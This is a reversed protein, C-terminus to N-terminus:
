NYFLGKKYKYIKPFYFDTLTQSLTNNLSHLLIPLFLDGSIVRAMGFIPGAILSAYVLQRLLVDKTMFHWNKLHYVGFLISTIMVKEWISGPISIFLWGRFFIEEVIPAFVISSLILMRNIQLKQKKRFLYVSITDTVFFVLCILGQNWTLFLSNLNIYSFLM